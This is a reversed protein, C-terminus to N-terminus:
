ILNNSFEIEVFRSSWVNLKIPDFSIKLNPHKLASPVRELDLGTNHLNLTLPSSRNLLNRNLGSIHPETFYTRLACSSLNLIRLTPCAAVIDWLQISTPLDRMKLLHLEELHTLKHCITHLLQTEMDDDQLVLRRLKSMRAIADTVRESSWFADNFLLSVVKLPQQRAVTGLLQEYFDRTYFALRRFNPMRLLQPLFDGLLHHDDILLEELTKCITVDNVNEGLTVNYGYYLLTLKTLKLTSFIQRFTSTDLFECWILHLERLQEWRWLHCGSTSSSLTLKTLYPFLATLLLTEEDNEDLNYDMECDLTHLRPFSYSTWTRLTEMSGKSLKLQQVSESCCELCDHMVTENSRLAELDDSTFTMIKVHRWYYQVYTHINGNVQTLAVQDSMPLFGLIKIWLDENINQM